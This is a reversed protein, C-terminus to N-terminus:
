LRARGGPKMLSCDSMERTAIARDIERDNDRWRFSRGASFVDKLAGSAAIGGIWDYDDSIVVHPQGCFFHADVAFVQASGGFECAFRCVDCPLGDVGGLLTEPLHQPFPKGFNPLGLLDRARRFRQAEAVRCLNRKVLPFAHQM